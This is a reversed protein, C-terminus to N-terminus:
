FAAPELAGFRKLNSLQAEAKAGRLEYRAIGVAGEVRAVVKRIEASIAFDPLGYARQFGDAGRIALVGHGALVQGPGRWELASGSAEVAQVVFAVRRNADPDDKPRVVILMEKRSPVESFELQGLLGEPGAPKPKGPHIQGVALTATLLCAIAFSVLIRRM